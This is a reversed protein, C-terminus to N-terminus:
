LKPRGGKTKGQRRMQTKRGPRYGTKVPEAGREGPPEGKAPNAVTHYHDGVPNVQRRRAKVTKNSQNERSHPRRLRRHPGHPEGPDLRHRRGKAHLLQDQREGARM